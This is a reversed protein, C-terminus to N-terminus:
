RGTRGALTAVVAILEDVDVPKTIYAQYGALMARTRDESRALATLAAAPLRGGADDPLSPVFPM